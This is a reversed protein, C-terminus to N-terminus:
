ADGARVRMSARSAGLGIGLVFLLLAAVISPWHAAPRLAWWIASNNSGLVATVVAFCPAVVMAAVGSAFRLVVLGIGIYGCLNRTSVVALSSGGLLLVTVGAVVVLCTICARLLLPAPRRALAEYDVLGRQTASVVGTAVLAPVLVSYPADGLGLRVIPMPRSGIWGDAVLALAILFVGAPEFHAKLWLIL